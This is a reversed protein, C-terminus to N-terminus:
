CAQLVAPDLNIIFGPTDSLHLHSNIRQLLTTKGSGAMGIVLVVTPKTCGDPGSSSPQSDSADTKSTEGTDQYAATSAIATSSPVNM